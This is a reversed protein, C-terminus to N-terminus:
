PRRGAFLQVPAAWTRPVEAVDRYGAGTLLAALEGAPWSRGGCRVTRLEVLLESLRDPRAAFSGALVWGGPRLAQFSRALAGPVVAAPLFPLPLWVADFRGVDSLELVDEHRLEVRGDLAADAVNGRALALAPEFVDIGVVRASPNARALAIALWGTGTGVDLVQAGDTALAGALGDLRDAAVRVADAVSLSLRGLGQLLAPDVRDWTGARGPDDVLETAQHLWARVMGVVAQAPVPDAGAVPEAGLLEAAV